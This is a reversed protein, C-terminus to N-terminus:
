KQDPPPHLSLFAPVLTTPHLRRTTTHLNAADGCGPEGCVSSADTGVGDEM